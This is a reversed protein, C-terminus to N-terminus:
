SVLIPRHGPMYEHVVDVDLNELLPTPCSLHDTIDELYELTTYIILSRLRKIADPALELFPDHPSLGDM